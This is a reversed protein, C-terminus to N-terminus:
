YPMGAERELQRNGILRHDRHIPDLPEEAVLSRIILKIKDLSKGRKRMGKIDRKFKRTYVPTLM